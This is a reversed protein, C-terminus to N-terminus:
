AIESFWADVDLGAQRRRFSAVLISLSLALVWAPFALVIWPEVREGDLVMVVAVVGGVVGLWRPGTGTRLLMTSAATTFVGAIILAVELVSESIHRGIVWIDPDILKQTDDTAGEVLGATIAISALLLAIFILGSGLFVTAFFRDESEGIRSRVVGIFWLFAIGAFPSLTLGVLAASRKTSDSLWVGADEPDTPVVIRACVFAITFLISFAVGAIGASRPTRLAHVVTPRREAIEVDPGAVVGNKRGL